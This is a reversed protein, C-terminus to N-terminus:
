LLLLLENRIGKNTISKRICFYLLEEWRGIVMDLYIGVRIDGSYIIFLLKPMSQQVSRGIKSNSTITNLYIIL